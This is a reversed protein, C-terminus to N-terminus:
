LCWREVTRQASLHCAKVHRGAATLRTGVTMDADTAAVGHISRVLREVDDIAKDIELIGTNTRRTQAADLAAKIRQSGDIGVVDFTDLHQFIDRCRGDVARTTGITDNEDSRLLSLAAVTLCVNVIGIINAKAIDALLKIQQVGGFPCPELLVIPGVLAAIGVVLYGGEAFAGVPLIGHQAGGQLLAM